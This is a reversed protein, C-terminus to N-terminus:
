RFVRIAPRRWQGRSGSPNGIHACWTIRTTATATTSAPILMSTARAATRSSTVASCSEETLPSVRCSRSSSGCSRGTNM